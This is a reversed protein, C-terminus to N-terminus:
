QQSLTPENGVDLQMKQFNAYGRNVIYASKAAKTVFLMKFNAWQSCIILVM